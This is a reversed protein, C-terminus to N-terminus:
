MISRKSVTALLRSDIFRMTEVVRFLILGGVM